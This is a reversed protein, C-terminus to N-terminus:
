PRVDGTNELIPAQFVVRALGGFPTAQVPDKKGALPLVIAWDFREIEDFRKQSRGAIHSSARLEFLPSILKVNDQGERSKLIPRISLKPLFLRCLRKVFGLASQARDLGLEMAAPQMMLYQFVTSRFKHLVIIKVRNELGGFPKGLPYPIQRSNFFIARREHVFDKGDFAWNKGDVGKPRFGFFGLVLPKRGQEFSAKGGNAVWKSM